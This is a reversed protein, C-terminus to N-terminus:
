DAIWVHPDAVGIFHGANLVKFAREFARLAAKRDGGSIGREICKDRWVDKSVTKVGGPLGIHEVEKGQDKMVETLADLAVREAPTLKTKKARKAAAEGIKSEAGIVEIMGVTIADGDEDKGLSYPVVRFTALDRIPQENASTVKATRIGGEAYIQIMVDVDGLHANSGRAGREENKGTHGIMAIHVDIERQVQRLNAACRNQDKAKDEDGNIAIGKNFTDFAVIGVPVGMTAEVARVTAVITRICNPACLDIMTDVVAIPLAKLGDRIQYARMHAKHQDSRELAFIVIGCAEKARHGCWDTGQACHIFIWDLLTTKGGMPPAIWSSIDGRAILGKLIWPKSTFASCDDFTTFPLAASGRKIERWASQNSGINGPDATEDRM